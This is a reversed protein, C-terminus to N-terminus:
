QIDVIDGNDREIDKVHVLHSRQCIPCELPVVRVDPDLVKPITAEVKAGTMPCVFRCKQM